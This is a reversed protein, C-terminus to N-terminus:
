RKPTQKKNELAASLLSLFDIKLAGALRAAVDLTPNRAGRELLSIYTPHLQAHEALKEQSLGARKREARIVLGFKRSIQSTM